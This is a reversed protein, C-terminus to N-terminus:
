LIYEDSPLVQYCSVCDALYGMLLLENGPWRAQLKAAAAQPLKRSDALVLMRSCSHEADTVDAAAAEASGNATVGDDVILQLQPKQQQRRRGQQPAASRSTMQLRATVVYAAGGLRALSAITQTNALKLEDPNLTVCAIGLGEFLSSHQGSNPQAAAAAAAAAATLAREPGGDLNTGTASVFGQLCAAAAAAAIAPVLANDVSTCLLANRPL